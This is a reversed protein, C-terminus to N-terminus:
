SDAAQQRSGATKQARSLMEKAHARTKASIKEGGLMRAIEELREQGTLEEMATITRGKHTSKRVVYHRDGYCAIQPLHTICVVQHLQALGNLSRGVRDATRGGIGSDVEDFILTEQATNRALLEKLALVIRSLEGGSAIKAMPRVEEGPNASFFFAVRDLGKEDLLYEGIRIAETGSRAAPSEELDFQVEFRCNPMDLSASTKEVAKGLRSATKRRSNSLELAEKLAKQRIEELAREKEGIEVEDSETAELEQRLQDAHDIVARTSGGYKQMLRRLTHLREEVWELRAPDAQIQQTYDRLSFSIDEVQHRLGELTEALPKLTPDLGGLEALIKQCKSVAELVAGSDAYLVQHATAAGEKLSEVHRLREREEELQIEEDVKVRAKNIEELQFFRLEEKERREQAQRRLQRLETLMKKLEAFTQAYTQVEKELGGFRDITELHAEPELFLQHEHQGSISVLGRCLETLVGVTTLQDNIFVRNRGSTSLTRKVLVELGGFKNLIEINKTSNDEAALNFLATVTAEQSGSRILEASGRSGLLLNIANVLISKGAGTEGTIVTLGPGFSVSLNDIIAFNSIQLDSLL